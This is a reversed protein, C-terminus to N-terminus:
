NVVWTTGNCYAKVHNTGGGTIVAAYATVTSDTISGITGETTSSCPIFSVLKALTGPIVQVALMTNSSSGSFICGGIQNGGPNVIGCNLDASFAGNIYSIGSLGGMFNLYTNNFVGSGDVTVLPPTAGSTTGGIFVQNIVAAVSNVGKMYIGPGSIFPSIFTNGLNFGHGTIGLISLSYAGVTHTTNENEWHPAVFVNDSCGVLYVGNKENSQSVLSSFTNNGSGDCYLSYSANQGLLVNDVHNANFAQDVKLGIDNLQFMSDRISGDEPGSLYAGAKGVGYFFNANLGHFRIIPNVVGTGDIRIANGSTTTRPSFTDPGIFSINGFDFWPNGAAGATWTYTWCNTGDGTACKIVTGPNLTQGGALGGGVGGLVTLSTKPLQLNHNICTGNPIHVVMGLPSATNFANQFATTDDTVGDCKAGFALVSVSSNQLTWTNTATCGYNNQGAVVGTLFFINGVACTAPLTPGHAINRPVLDVSQCLALGAFAIIVGLLKKVKIRKLVPM